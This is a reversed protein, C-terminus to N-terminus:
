KKFFGITSVVPRNNPTVDNIHSSGVMMGTSGGGDFNVAHTCGLGLLIRSLEQLNVGPSETIRGDCIFLIMKGDATYGAATRDCIVDAGFIDYPMIEFNNLYYETGKESEEFNFPIRGEYLLVPGASLAERAQWQAPKTPNSSSVEGYRAEGRVSPLPRSFYLPTGSSETGAWWVAPKGEKDTGFLGRTVYYMQNYEEDQTRLSGRVAGISGSPQGEHVALGTHRGNYFYGGNTLILCNDGLSAKQQDITAASTPVNVRFEAVAPDTVAYWAHFTRGSVPSTTEYVKVGDPAEVSTWELTIPQPAEKLKLSVPASYWTGTSSNLFVAVQYAVGSELVADPIVQLVSQGSATMAPGEQYDGSELSPVGEKSWCLGYHVGSLKSDNAFHYKVLFSCDSAESKDIILEPVNALSVLNFLEYVTKSNGSSGTAQVGFYYSHDETLGDTVEFTTVDAPTEGIKKESLLNDTSKLWIAFGSENSSNDKWQLRVATRGSREISVGSPAAPISDAPNNKASCSLAAALTLLILVKKDM